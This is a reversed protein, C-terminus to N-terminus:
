VAAHGECRRNTPHHLCHFSVVCRAWWDSWHIELCITPCIHWFASYGGLFEIVLTVLDACRLQRDKSLFWKRGHWSPLRHQYHCWAKHRKLVGVASSTSAKLKFGLRRNDGSSILRFNSSWQLQLKLGNVMNWHSVYLCVTALGGACHEDM